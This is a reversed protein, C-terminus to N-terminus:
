HDDNDYPSDFWDCGVEVRLTSPTYLVRSFRGGPYNRVFHTKWYPSGELSPEQEPDDSLIVPCSLPASVAARAKRRQELTTEM